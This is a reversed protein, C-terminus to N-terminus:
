FPVEETSEKYTSPKGNFEQLLKDASIAYEVQEDELEFKNFVPSYYKMMPTVKEVPDGLSVGAGTPITADIWSSMAAGGLDIKAICGIFEQSNTEIIQAYVIKRFKIGKAKLEDKIDAYMGEKYVSSEGDKWSIVTLEEKDIRSVENSRLMGKGEIFGAVGNKQDLVAFKFNEELEIKIKEIKDYVKWNGNKASWEIILSVPNETSQQTEPNSISM